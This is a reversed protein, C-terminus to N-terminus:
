RDREGGENRSCGRWGGEEGGGREDDQEEKGEEEEGVSKSYYRLKRGEKRAAEFMVEQYWGTPDVGVVRRYGGRQYLGMAAEDAEDLHLYIVEEGWVRRVLGEAAKVLGRGLGQGRYLPAVALNCLYPRCKRDYRLSSSRISSILNGDPRRLCLEVVAVLRRTPEEEVCLTLSESTQGELSLTRLREGHRSLLGWRLEQRSAVFALANVTQTFPRILRRALWSPSSSSSPPSPSFDPDQLPLDPPFCVLLLQVLSPLDSPELLGLRYGLPLPKPGFTAQVEEPPLPIPALARPTCQSRVESAPLRQLQLFTLPLPSATLPLCCQLLLLLLLIALVIFTEPPGHRHAPRAQLPRM